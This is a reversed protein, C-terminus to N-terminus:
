GGGGGPGRHGGGGDDPGQTITADTGTCSATVLLDEAIDSEFRVSVTAAPGRVVDDAWYGPSPSWSVLTAVDGACRVVVSGFPGTGVHDVSGPMGAAPVGAAPPTAGPTDAAPGGAAAGGAATPTATPAPSTTSTTARPSPTATASTSTPAPEQALERAVDERSLASGRAGVSAAIALSAAVTVAVATCAWLVVRIGPKTM